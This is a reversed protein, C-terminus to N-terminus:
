SACRDKKPISMIEIYICVGGFVGLV